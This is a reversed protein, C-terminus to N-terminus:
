WGSVNLVAFSLLFTEILLGNLSFFWSAKSVKRGTACRVDEWSFDELLCDLSSEEIDKAYKLTLIDNRDFLM